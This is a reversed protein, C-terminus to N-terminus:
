STSIGLIQNLNEVLAACQSAASALGAMAATAQASGDGQVAKAYAVMPTLFPQLAAEAALREAETMAATQASFATAAASAQQEFTAMASQAYEYTSQLDQTLIVTDPAELTIAASELTSAIQSGGSQIDSGIQAIISAMQKALAIESATAAKM